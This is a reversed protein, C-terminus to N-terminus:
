RNATLDYVTQGGITTSTYHEAVWKSIAAESGSTGGGAGGGGSAIFYHIDGAAVYAKFQALTLNGGNNNFGGIAMVPDGNTALELNAASQSGFTAAVWRYSGDDKELTRVLASSTSLGGGGGGGPDGGAAAGGAAPTGSKAGTAPTTTGSSATPRTGSSGSPRTGM